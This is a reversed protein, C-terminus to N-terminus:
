KEEHEDTVQVYETKPVYPFTINVRSKSSIFICGNPEVFIKGESDYAQGHQDKFVKGCRINQWMDTGVELWEWDEGTIPVLPEFNALKNFYAICYKASFGSHKQNSFVELLEILNEQMWKNPGDEQEQELPIYGVAKLERKAHEILNSM